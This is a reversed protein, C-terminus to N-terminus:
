HGSNLGEIPRGITLSQRLKPDLREAYVHDPAAGLADLMKSFFCRAAAAATVDFIEADSM